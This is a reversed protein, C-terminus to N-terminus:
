LKKRVLVINTEINAFYNNFTNAIQEPKTINKKMIWLIHQDNVKIGVGVWHTM